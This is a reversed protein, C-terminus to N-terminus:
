GPRQQFYKTWETDLRTDLQTFNNRKYIETRCTKEREGKEGPIDRTPLPMSPPFASASPTEQLSAGLWLDEVDSGSPEAPGDAREM